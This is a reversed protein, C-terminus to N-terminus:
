KPKRPRAVAYMEQAIKKFGATTDTGETFLDFHTRGPVYTFTAGADLKKLREELLRAPQDLHFTDATGVIVHIKGRLNKRSQPWEREIKNAIDFHAGWYAAVDPDIRGTVRDFLRQPRGDAGKPSFVWEFSAFQGGYEGTVVERRAFEEVSAVERGDMRVLPWRTGDAARYANAEPAYINPGTFDRFDSPDPATSWTGGFVTPYAVQLWLTAWGGSSHGTLLRGSPRGDMRYHSELYPIVERTLATGWPGNNVSDAFEHTGTPSSEDLLVWIMPPITKELLLRNYEPIGATAIDTLTGGFGHTWYVTPYKTRADYHPPLVVYGRVAMPRGWFASLVASHVDLPKVNAPPVPAPPAPMEAGVILDLTEAGAPTLSALTKPESFLDGPGPGSYAYSHDVDLFVQAQYDGPPATSLAAPFAVDDLDVDIAEGPALVDVERAAIWVDGPELGPALQKKGTGKALLVLLRGSVPGKFSRDLTVHALWHRPASAEVFPAIGATHLLLVCLGCLRRMRSM